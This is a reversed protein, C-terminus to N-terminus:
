PLAAVSAALQQRRWLRAYLGERRLLEAHTGEEVVRGEALVVVRDAIRAAQLRHTILLATRGRMRERLRGLIEAEKAADVSAFAVDHGRRYAAFALHLTTYSARQTRPNNVVFCVRM